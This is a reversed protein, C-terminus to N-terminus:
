EEGEKELPYYVRMNWFAHEQAEFLPLRVSGRRKVFASVVESEVDELPGGFVFAPDLALLQELHTREAGPCFLFTRPTVKEFAHPSELVTIDLSSLLATDLTNFVPDQAYTKITPDAASSSSSSISAIVDVLAALQYLSVLRRDVWGGRLFGSPSGLGICIISDIGTGIGNHKNETTTHSQPQTNDTNLERSQLQPPLFINHLTRGVVDCTTSEKWTRQIQTFQSKLSDLTTTPPAEAPHFTEPEKEEETPSQFQSQSQQDKTTRACRRAKGSTTVHTWGTTADTIQLRKQAQLTNNPHPHKKRSTHPM